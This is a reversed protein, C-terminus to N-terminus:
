RRDISRDRRAPCAQRSYVGSRFARQHKVVLVKDDGDDERHGHQDAPLIEERRGLAFLEALLLLLAFGLAFPLGYRGQWWNPLASWVTAGIACPVIVMGDHLFSGSALKSGVDNYNYLTITHGGTGALAALGPMEMGLEDHM